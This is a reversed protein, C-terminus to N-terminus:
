RGLVDQATLNPDGVFARNWGSQTNGDFWVSQGPWLIHTYVHEPDGGASRYLDGLSRNPHAFFDELISEENTGSFYGGGGMRLVTSAYAEIRRRALAESVPSSDGSSGGGCYCCFFFAVANEALRNTTVLMDQTGLRAGPPDTPDVLCFGNLSGYMETPDAPIDGLGFGHGKYVVISAGGIADRVNEWTSDPWYVKVVNMGNREMIDALRDAWAIYSKTTAHGPPDIPGVVLVAKPPVQPPLDHLLSADTVTLFWVGKDNFVAGLTQQGEEDRVLTLATAAIGDLLVGYGTNTHPLGVDLAQWRDGQSDSVFVGDIAAAAFLRGTNSAVIKWISVSYPGTLGVDCAIWTEGDNSRYLGRSGSTGLFMTGNHVLISHVMFSSASSEMQPQPQPMLSSPIWSTPVERIAVYDSVNVLEWANGILRYLGTSTGVYLTSQYVALDNVGADLENGITDWEGTPLRQWVQYPSYSGAYLTGDAFDLFCLSRELDVDLSWTMGADHSVYIEGVWQEAAYIAADPLLSDELALLDPVWPLGVDVRKWARGHNTSCYLGDPTISWLQGPRPGAELERVTVNQLAWPTWETITEWNFEYRITPLYVKAPVRATIYNIRTLTDVEGLGSITLTVTYSGPLSYTHTPSELTSTVRDGLDWLSSTYDGSSTNTFIVTLPTMGETPSATFNATIPKTVSINTAINETYMGQAMCITGGSSARSDLAYSTIKCSTSTTRSTGIDQGTAGDVYPISPDAHTPPVEQLGWLLVTFFLIALGISIGLWTARLRRNSQALNPNKMTQRKRRHNQALRAYRGAHAAGVRGRQYSM